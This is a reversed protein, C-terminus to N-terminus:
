QGRILAVTILAKNRTHNEIFKTMFLHQPLTKFNHCGTVYCATNGDCKAYVRVWLNNRLNAFNPPAIVCLLM